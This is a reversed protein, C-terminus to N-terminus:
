GLGRDELSAARSSQMLDIAHLSDWSVHENAVRQLYGDADAMFKYDGEPLDQRTGTFTRVAPDGVRTYTVTSGQPARKIEVPVPLGTLRLDLEANQGPALEITKQSAQFQRGKQARFTRAGAKLDRVIRTDEQTAGLSNGDVLLESGPTLRISASANQPKRRFQFSVRKDEGKQIEAPQENFDADFGEKAARVVYKGARLNAVRFIGKESNGRKVERGNTIVSIAM